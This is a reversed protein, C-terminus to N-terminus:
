NGSSSPNASSTSAPQLPRTNGTKYRTQAEAGQAGSGEPAELSTSGPATQAQTNIRVAEGFSPAGATDVPTTCAAALAALGAAAILHTKM